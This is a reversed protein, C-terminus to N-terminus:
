AILLWAIHVLYRLMRSKAIPAIATRHGVAIAVAAHGRCGRGGQAEAPNV